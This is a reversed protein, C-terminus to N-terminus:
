HFLRANFMILVSFLPLSVLVQLAKEIEFESRAADEINIPLTPMAKSVCYLKKVQIEVQLLLFCYSFRTFFISDSGMLCCCFQAELIIFVILIVSVVYSVVRVQQTTGKIPVNPVTVLGEIDVISERSLGAVYRVMQRSVVEPQVTVVCQVTSGKERVVVFAMNKGVARITQARGSIRVSNGSLASTLSGVETWKTIEEESMSELESLPADGYSGSLPDEEEVSMSAAAAALAAEQQKKRLKEQKAAEKKAAKKSVSKSDEDKVQEPLPPPARCPESASSPAQSESSM